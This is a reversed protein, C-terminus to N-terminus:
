NECFFKTGLLQCLSLLRSAVGFVPIYSVSVKSRHDLRSTFGRLCSVILGSRLKEVCEHTSHHGLRFSGKLLM